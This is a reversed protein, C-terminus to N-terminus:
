SECDETIEELFLYQLAITYKATKKTESSSNRLNGNSKLTFSGSSDGEAFVVLLTNAMNDNTVFDGVKSQIVYKLSSINELM